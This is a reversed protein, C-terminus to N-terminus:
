DGLIGWHSARIFHKYPINALVGKDVDHVQMCVQWGESCAETLVQHQMMM